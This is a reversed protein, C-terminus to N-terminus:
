HPVRLAKKADSIIDKHDFALKPLANLPWWKVYAADDGAVAKHNKTKCLYGVTIYHGRPDRGPKSYIGTLKYPHVDLGTEEKAERVVTNEVAENYEVHGGPLAWMGKFPGNKRKVLLVRNNKIIIADATVKSTKM